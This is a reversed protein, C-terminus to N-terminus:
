PKIFASAENKLSGKHLDRATTGDCRSTKCGLATDPDHCHSKSDFKDCLWNRFCPWHYTSNSQWIIKHVLAWSINM